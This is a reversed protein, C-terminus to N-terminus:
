ETQLVVQPDVRGARIAPLLSAASATGLLLVAVSIFTLPDRTGVDFLLGELRGALLWASALGLVVGGAILLVGKKLVLRILDHTRAGFAIRVGFERSRQTVERAVVSFLGVAAMILALLGFSAFVRAGVSWSRLQEEVQQAVPTATVLATGPVAPELAQILPRGLAATGAEEGRARVLLVGRFPREGQEWSRYIMRVDDQRIDGRRIDAAVGVVRYCPITDSRVYACQGLARHGAGDPAPWTARAVSESVVIVPESSETDGAEIGRGELIPTGMVDFYEPTVMTELYSVDQGASAGTTSGNSGGEGPAPTGDERIFRVTATNAFPTSTALAVAAVGPVSSARRRLEEMSFGLEEASRFMDFAGSTEVDVMAVADADFGLEVTSALALSRIFLGAGVLLVASLAAQGVPLLIQSTARARGSGRGGSRLQTALDSRRAQLAPLVSVLAGALLVLLGGFLVSRPALGDMATVADPLLTRTVGVVVVHGVPIAVLAGLGALLISEMLPVLILRGTGIGLAARVAIERVRGLARGTMLTAVNACAVLFVIVAMGLLWLTFRTETRPYPGRDQLLPQFSAEIDWEATRDGGLYEEYHTEIVRGVSALAAPAGGPAPRVRVALFTTGPRDAFDDGIFTPAAATLPVFLDPTRLELARFGRPAVGVIEYRKEAVEVTQGLITPDGGFERQWFGWSLVAVPQGLPLEDDAPGFFRGAAPVADFLSWGSGSMGLVLLKRRQSGLSAIQERWASVMVTETSQTEEMVERALPYSFSGNALRNGSRTRYFYLSHVDEGAKLFPPPRLLLQDVVEFMATNAGVGLGLTVVVTLAFGPTRRLARVATRFEAWLAEMMGTM